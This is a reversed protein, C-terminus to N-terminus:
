CGFKAKSAEPSFQQDPQELLALKFAPAPKNVLPSPVEHPDLRLGVALFGVLIAFLILPILAKAKM